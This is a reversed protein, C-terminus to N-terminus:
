AAKHGVAGVMARLPPAARLNDVENEFARLRGIDRDLLRGLKLEDDIELRGLGRVDRHRWRDHDTGVLDDFSRRQYKRFQCTQSMGVANDAKLTIRFVNARPSNKETLGAASM